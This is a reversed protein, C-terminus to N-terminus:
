TKSAEIVQESTLGYLPPTAIDLMALYLYLQGRHHIEHEAMARLWKWTTIQTGAPTTCKQNLAEPTLNEFIAKSEAYKEKYFAITAEFGKAYETGCGLYNSPNGQVTEGYMYREICANHRIIDGITFKGAKYTWEIKDEPIYDFLRITRHKIRDYYRLFDSTNTIQM